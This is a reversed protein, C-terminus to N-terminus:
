IFMYDIVCKFLLQAVGFKKQFGQIVEMSQASSHGQKERGHKLKEEQTKNENIFFLPVLVRSM